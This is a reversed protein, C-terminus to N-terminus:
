LFFLVPSVEAISGMSDALPLTILSPVFFLPLWKALLASGPSLINYLQPGAPVLLFTAFLAGCGALASPFGISFAEFLRRCFVDFAILMSAAVLSKKLTVPAPAEEDGAAKTSLLAVSNSRTAPTPRVVVHRVSCSPQRHTSALRASFVRPQFAFAVGTLVALATANM